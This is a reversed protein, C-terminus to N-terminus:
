AQKPSPATMASQPHVVVNHFAVIQWGEDSRWFVQELRTRLIGDQVPVVHPLAGFGTVETLTNVIAVDARIFRIQEVEQRLTSGKYFTSFIHHHQAEFGARGVSFLGVINTFIVDPATARSFAAADGARWASEQEDLIARLSETEDTV